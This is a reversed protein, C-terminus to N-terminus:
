DEYIENLFIQIGDTDLMLAAGDNQDPTLHALINLARAKDNTTKFGIGMAMAAMMQRTEPNQFDQILESPLEYFGAYRIKFSNDNYIIFQMRMKTGVKLPGYEKKLNGTFEVFQTGNKTQKMVWQPTAFYADFAKGITTEKHNTLFADKVISPSQSHGLSCGFSSLSLAVALATRFTKTM